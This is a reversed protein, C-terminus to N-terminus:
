VQARVVIAYTMSLFAAISCCRKGQFQSTCISHYTNFHGDNTFPFDRFYIICNLSMWEFLSVLVNTQFSTISTSHTSISFCIINLLGQKRYISNYYVDNRLHSFDNITQLLRKNWLVFMIRIKFSARTDRRAKLGLIWVQAILATDWGRRRAHDMM